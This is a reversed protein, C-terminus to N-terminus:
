FSRKVGVGGRGIGFSTNDDLKMRGNHAPDPAPAAPKQLQDFRQPQSTKSVDLDQARSVPPLDLCLQYQTPKCDKQALAPAGSALMAAAALLWPSISSPPMKEVRRFCM